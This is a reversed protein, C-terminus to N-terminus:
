ITVNGLPVSAIFDNTQTVEKNHEAELAIAYERLAERPDRDKRVIYPPIDRWYPDVPVTKTYAPKPEGTQLDTENDVVIERTENEVYEKSIVENFFHLDCRTEKHEKGDDFVMTFTVNGNEPNIHDITISKM